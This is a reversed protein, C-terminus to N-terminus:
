PLAAAGRDCDPPNPQIMSLGLKEAMDSVIRLFRANLQHTNLCHMLRVDDNFEDCVVWATGPLDTLGIRALMWDQKNRAGVTCVVMGRLAVSGDELTLARAASAAALHTGLRGSARYAPHVIWRGIEVTDTRRVGLSNLVESFVKKGLIQETLCPPSNADLCYVRVCGALRSGDYALIHYAHLDIPDPDFLRGDV